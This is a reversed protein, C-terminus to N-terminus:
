IFYYRINWATKKINKWNLNAKCWFAILYKINISKEKDFILLM